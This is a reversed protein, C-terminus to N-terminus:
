CLFLGHNVMLVNFCNWYANFFYDKRKFFSHEYINDQMMRHTLIKAM